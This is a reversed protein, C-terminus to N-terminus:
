LVINIMKQPVVIVKKPTKGEFWKTVEPMALVSTELNATPTSVDFTAAHRKKGNICIPYEISNEVLYDDNHPMWHAKFVSHSHGLQQWLEEATFPAFPALLIALPELIARKNCNLSRLENVCQMFSSVCTNFSFRNLDFTVRKICTHLAKLEAATPPTDAVSFQEGPAAFYLAWLKRLFKYVGEIGNTDWPKSVELPGLFMEYMRFCDAGYRAIVEDPNIVNYWSKSMKGIESKTYFPQPTDGYFTGHLWYGAPTIFKAQAFEPRWEILKAFGEADLYSPTSAHYDKVTSIHIRVQIADPPAIENSYYHGDPARWITEAVGQIMGQNILKKYPEDTPVLHLDFLFKHWMRSYMLHGVAHEAGGVYLDVDQWYGIHEKDAFATPNHPDMYRLYYWSSGAFGPMTDIEYTFGSETHVWNHARALPAKGEFPKFDTLEPLEHPLADILHPIGQTDYKVPFPEGWYRQRSFNADRIKFNIRRSGIGLQEIRDIAAQIADPVEMGNLFGSNYLVGLKDDLTAHPYKSKDVVGIIDLGFHNAFRQDREDDSPVAMIAGTGYGALVYESIWIPIYKELFPNYAYSGTFAGSVKKQEALRERETRSKCYAVYQLVENAQEGTTLYQVFPHEPALVLFTAGFITDPRTTFVEIKQDSDQIGFFVQAGESRGIWNRQQEKLSESFDVKDLGDLLRQAYATIRLSWQLMPRQEVPYGGRESVGNKVEDNALVSGLAECWNVYSVKRYALRYNMLVDQQQRAPMAAWEAATFADDQSNTARVQTNGAEEFQAILVSIPQASQTRLDYYHTYLQTFLWQTWRYYQPDSTNVERSWDFSLGINNLQRKYNAINDRTSVAPHVGKQIAYQEAPLGFADWGMPHLVNYGQLRKYRAYIDSAVYGLPHGVHLGEGSPYPFMDLIYYKPLSTDTRVENTKHLEWAKSWKQELENPKYEM